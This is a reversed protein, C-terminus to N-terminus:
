EIVKKTEKLFDIFDKLEKNDAFQILIAKGDSNHLYLDINGDKGRYADFMKNGSFLIDVKRM